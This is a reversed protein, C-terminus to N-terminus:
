SVHLTMSAIPSKYKSTRASITMDWHGTVALDITGEYRGPGVPTMVAPIPGLGKSDLAFRVSPVSLPRLPEGRADRLYLQLGNRGVTLPDIRVRVVGAGLKAEVIQARTNSGGGSPPTSEVAGPPQTALVSTTALIAVLGVAELRLTTSLRRQGSRDHPEARVQPLLRYRNWAAMALVGAVLCLKVLLAQGYSTRWLGEISGLIRWALVTGAVALATVTWGAISSFRAVTSAARSASADSWRSMTLVLGLIGGIWVAAAAVHVLDSGVVLWTPGYTRTHGVWPLSILALAAGAAGITTWRTRQRQAARDVSLSTTVLGLAAMLASAGAYSRFGDAWTEGVTLDALSGARQWAVTLPMAAAIAVLTVAVLAHGVKRLTRRLRPMSRRTSDLVALEFFALGVAALLGLYGLSGAALRVLNLSTTPDTASVGGTPTSREGVSFTFGGSVPHDDASIVRWNVTFSGRSTITPLIAVVESNLAKADVDLRQGAPDFVTVSTKWARVPEDFTLTVAPPAEAVLADHKPSTSLLTAHASAPPAALLMSGTALLLGTPVTLAVWPAWWASRANHRM